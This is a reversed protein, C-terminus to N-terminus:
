RRKLAMGRGGMKRSTAIISAPKKSFISMAISFRHRSIKRCAGLDARTRLHRQGPRIKFATGLIPFFDALYAKDEHAIYPDLQRILKLKALTPLIDQPLYFADPPEGAAMMTKLKEHFLTAYDGVNIRVIRVRPNQSEFSSVLDRDIRDEAPNGWHLISLTVPRDHQANHREIARGIVNGFAWVVIALSALALASRILRAINM